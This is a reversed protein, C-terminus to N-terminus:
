RLSKKVPLLGRSYVRTEIYLVIFRTMLLINEQFLGTIPEGFHVKSTSEQKRVRNLQENNNPFSLIKNIFLNNKRRPYHIKTQQLFRVVIFRIKKSNIAWSIAIVPYPWNVRVLPAEAAVRTLLRTPGPTVADLAIRVQLGLLAAVNVQEPEHGKGNLEPIISEDPLAEPM